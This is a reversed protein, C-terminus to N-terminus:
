SDDRCGRDELYFKVSWKGDFRAVDVFRGSREGCCAEVCKDYRIEEVEMGEVMGEGMVEATMAEAEAMVEAMLLM